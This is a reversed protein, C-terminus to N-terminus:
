DLSATYVMGTWIDVTSNPLYSVPAGGSIVRATWTNIAASSLGQMLSFRNNNSQSPVFYANFVGVAMTGDGDRFSRGRFSPVTNGDATSVIALGGPGKEVDLLNGDAGRVLHRPTSDNLKHDIIAQKGGMSIGINGANNPFAFPQNNMQAQAQPMTLGMACAFTLPLIFNKM